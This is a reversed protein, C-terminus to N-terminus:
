QVFRKRAEYIIAVESHSGRKVDELSIAHKAIWTVVGAGVILGGAISAWVSSTFLAAMGTGGAITSIHKSDVISEIAGTITAFDM